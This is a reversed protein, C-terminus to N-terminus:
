RLQIDWLVCKCGSRVTASRKRTGSEWVWAVAADRAVLPLLVSIAHIPHVVWSLSFNMRPNILIRPPRSEWKTPCIMTKTTRGITMGHKGSEKIFGMDGHKKSCDQKPRRWRDVYINDCAKTGQRQSSAELGSNTRDISWVVPTTPELPQWDFLSTYMRGLANSGALSGNM